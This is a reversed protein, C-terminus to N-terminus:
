RRAAEHRVEVREGWGQMAAQVRSQVAVPKSEIYSTTENELAKTANPGINCHGVLTAGEVVTLRASALDGNVKAKGCIEIREAATVNGEVTGEVLVKAAGVTAKCTANEAIQLEGKAAIKGEFVGLIRASSTFSMEGNIKTDAGIITTQAPADAM